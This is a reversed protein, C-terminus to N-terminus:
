AIAVRRESPELLRVRNALRLQQVDGGIRGEIRDAVIRTEAVQEAANADRPCVGDWLRAFDPRRAWAYGVDVYRASRHEARSGPERVM